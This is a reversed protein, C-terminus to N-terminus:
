AGQDVSRIGPVPWAQWVRGSGALAEAALSRSASIQCAPGATELSPEHSRVQNATAQGIGMLNVALVRLQASPQGAAAQAVDQGDPLAVRDQRRGPRERRALQGPPQGGPGPLPERGPRAGFAGAPIVPGQDLGGVWRAPM